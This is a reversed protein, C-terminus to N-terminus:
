NMKKVFDMLDMPNDRTTGVPKPKDTDQSDDALVAHLDDIDTALVDNITYGHLNTVVDRVMKYLRQKYEKFSIEDGGKM